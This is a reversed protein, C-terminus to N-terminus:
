EGDMLLQKLQSYDNHLSVFHEQKHEIAKLQNPLSGKMKLYLPLTEPFKAPHATELFIVNADACGRELYERAGLWAVAGHPDPLYQKEEVLSKIAQRTQEDSFSCAYIMERFKPHSHEFLEMMRAYNSPNGVDMANSITQQSPLPTYEATRFYVPVVENSNTAAVFRHVNLGMKVALLGASLNGFNGSPVSFVLPRSSDRLQAAAHFYYFSQPLLRAINISNASTLLHKRNLDKDGLAKKALAQCDDFTGEVELAKINGGWTTIQKQQLPSVKNKPFLVYVEIGPVDFFGAAVASGTDGSTAVIVKLNQQKRQLFYGMLRSMFRAGVDKFAMTPGHFLELTYINEGIKVLPIDFSLTDHCIKKLEQDPVANGLFSRAVRYGTEGLSMEPLENWFEQPLQPIAQPMYLGGDDALGKLVAHQLDVPESQRQTSYYLM